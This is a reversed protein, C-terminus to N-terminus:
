SMFRTACLYLAMLVEDKDLLTSSFTQFEQIIKQQQSPNTEEKYRNLLQSMKIMSNSLYPKNEIIVPM